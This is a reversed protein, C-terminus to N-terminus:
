SIHTKHELMSIGYTLVCRSTGLLVKFCLNQRYAIYYTNQTRVHAHWINSCMKIYRAFSQFVGFRHCIILVLWPKSIFPEVHTSALPCCVFFSLHCLFQEPVSAFFSLTTIAFVYFYTYSISYVSLLLTQQNIRPTTSSYDCRLNPLFIAAVNLIPLKQEM